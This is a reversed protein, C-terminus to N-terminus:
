HALDAEATIALMSRAGDISPRARPTTTEALSRMGGLNGPFAIIGQVSPPTFIWDSRLKQM